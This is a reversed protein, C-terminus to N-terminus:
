SIALRVGEDRDVQPRLRPLARVCGLLEELFQTAAKKQENTVPHADVLRQFVSASTELWDRWAIGQPASRKALLSLLQHAEQSSASFLQGQPRFFASADRTDSAIRALDRLVFLTREESLQRGQLIALGDELVHRFGVSGLASLDDDM